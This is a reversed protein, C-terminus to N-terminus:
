SIRWSLGWFAVAFVLWGCCFVMAFYLGWVDSIGGILTPSLFDGLLHVLFINYGNGLSRLDSSLTTLSAITSPGTGLFLCFQGLTLLVIYIWLIGSLAGALNLIFGFLTVFFLLKCAYEIKFLDVKKEDIEM